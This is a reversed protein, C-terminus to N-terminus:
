TITNSVWRSEFTVWNKVLPVFKEAIFQLTYTHPNLTTGALLPHIHDPQKTQHSKGVVVVRRVADSHM